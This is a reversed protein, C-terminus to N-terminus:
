RRAWRRPRVGDLSDSKILGDTRECGPPCRDIAIADREQQDQREGGTKAKEVECSREGVQM